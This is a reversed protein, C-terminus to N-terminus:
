NLCAVIYIKSCREEQINSKNVVCFNISICLSKFHTFSCKNVVFHKVSLTYWSIPVCDITKTVNLIGFLLDSTGKVFFYVGIASCVLYQNSICKYQWSCFVAPRIKM